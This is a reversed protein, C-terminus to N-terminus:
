YFYFLLLFKGHVFLEPVCLVFILLVIFFLFFLLIFHIPKRDNAICEKRMSFALKNCLEPQISLWETSLAETLQKVSSISKSKLRDDMVYWLREIVNLDLSKDPWELLKVCNMFNQKFKDHYMIDPMTMNTFFIM